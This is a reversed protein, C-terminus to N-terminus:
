IQLLKINGNSTKISIKYKGQNLSGKIESSVFGKTISLDFDSKIYGNVSSGNVRFSSEDNLEIKVSGNETTADIDGRLIDKLYLNISGNIAKFNGNTINGQFEIAGNISKTKLNRLNGKAEIQGNTSTLQIYKTNEPVSIFFHVIVKYNKPNRKAYVNLLNEKYEYEIKATDLDEKNDAMKVAKIVVEKDAHTSLKIIGNVNTLKILEKEGLTFSKQEQKEYKYPYIYSILTLILIIICTTKM